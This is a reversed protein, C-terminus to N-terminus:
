GDCHQQRQQDASNQYAGGAVADLLCVGVKEHPSESPDVAQCSSHDHRGRQEEGPKCHCERELAAQEVHPSLPLEVHAGQRRSHNSQRKRPQRRHEPHDNSQRRPGPGARRQAKHRPIELGLYSRVLDDGRDHEVVYGYGERCEQHLVVEPIRARNVLRHQKRWTRPQRLEHRASPNRQAYHDPDESDRKEIVNYAPAHEAVLYLGDPPIRM